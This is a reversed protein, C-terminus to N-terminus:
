IPWMTLGGMPRFAWLTKHALSPRHALFILGKKEIKM